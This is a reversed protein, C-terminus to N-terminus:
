GSSGSEESHSCELPKQSCRPGATSAAEGLVSTRHHLRSDLEIIAAKVDDLLATDPVNAMLMEVLQMPMDIRTAQMFQIGAFPTSSGAPAAFPPNVPQASGRPSMVTMVQRKHVGAIPTLARTNQDPSM